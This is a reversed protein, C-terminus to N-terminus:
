CGAPCRDGNGMGECGLCELNNARTTTAVHTPNTPPEAPMTAGTFVLWAGVAIPVISLM